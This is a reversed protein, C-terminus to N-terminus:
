KAQAASRLEARRKAKRDRDSGVGGMLNIRQTQRDNIVRQVRKQWATLKLKRALFDAVFLGVGYRRLRFTARSAWSQIRLYTELRPTV